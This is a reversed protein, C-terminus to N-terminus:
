RGAILSFRLKGMRFRRLRGQTRCPVSKAWRTSAWGEERLSCQRKEQVVQAKDGGEVGVVAHSRLVQGNAETGHQQWRALCGGPGADAARARTERIRHVELAMDLHQVVQQLGPWTLQGGGGRRPFSAPIGSSAKEPPWNLTKPKLRPM